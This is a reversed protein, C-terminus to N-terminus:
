SGLAASPASRVGRRLCGARSGICVPTTLRAGVRQTRVERVGSGGKAKSRGAIGVEDHRYIRLLATRGADVDLRRHRRGYHRRRRRSHHLLATLETDVDLRPDLMM